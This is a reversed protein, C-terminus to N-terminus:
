MDCRHVTLCADFQCFFVSISPSLSDWQSKTRRLHSITQSTKTILYINWLLEPNFQQKYMGTRSVYCSIVFSLGGTTRETHKLPTCPM